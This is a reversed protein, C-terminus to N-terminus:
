YANKLFLAKTKDPLDPCMRFVKDNYNETVGNKEFDEKTCTKFKYITNNTKGQWRSRHNIVFESLKGM